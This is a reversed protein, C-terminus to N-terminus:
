SQRKRSFLSDLAVAVLILVGTVVQQYTTDWHLLNFGNGIVTLILVGVLARWVAGEGGLVSVGGIVVAAIATLEVGAAMNPQASGARSLLVIGALAACAGNIAFLAVRTSGVRIGALRAAEQNGGVAYIRRGFTTRALVLGLIIMTVALLISAWTLGIPSRSALFGIQSTLDPPPSVITGATLVIALGRYIISVALTGVFSNVRTKVVILGTITGLAIGTLLAALLGAEYGFVRMVWVGAIASVALTATVSLDWVGGIICLTAGAALLGLVVAQDLVNILNGPTLFTTTGFTLFLFIALLGILIGFDRLRVRRHRREGRLTTAVPASIHLNTM